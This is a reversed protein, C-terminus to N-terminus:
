PWKCRPTPPHRFVSWMQERCYVGRFPYIHSDERAMRYEAPRAPKHCDLAPPPLWDTVAHNLGAPIYAPFYQFLRGNGSTYDPLTPHIKTDSEYLRAPLLFCYTPINTPKTTTYHYLPDP